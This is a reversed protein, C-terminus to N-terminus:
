HSNKYDKISAPKSLMMVDYMKGLHHVRRGRRTVLPCTPHYDEKKEDIKVRFPSNSAKM